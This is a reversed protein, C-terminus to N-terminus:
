ATRWPSSRRSHAFIAAIDDDTMGGFAHWCSFATRGSKTYFQPM